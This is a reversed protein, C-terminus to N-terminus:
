LTAGGFDLEDFHTLIGVRYASAVHANKPKKQKYAIRTFKDTAITAMTRSRLIGHRIIVPRREYTWGSFLDFSVISAHGTSVLLEELGSSTRVRVDNVIKVSDVEWKKEEFLFMLEIPFWRPLADNQPCKEVAIDDSLHLCSKM